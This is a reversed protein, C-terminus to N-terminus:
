VLGKFMGYNGCIYDKIAKKIYLRLEPKRVYYNLRTLFFYAYFVLKTPIGYGLKKCLYLRNRTNYYYLTPTVTTSRGEKHFIVSNKSCSLKYGHNVFTCSYDVDEVYLFYAEDMLGCKEIASLRILWCCGSLYNIYQQDAKDSNYYSYGSGKYRSYYGGLTYEDKHYYDYIKPGVMGITSDKELMSVLPPLFGDDVITDNNLLMVYDCKRQQSIRIGINNGASFGLNSKSQYLVCKYSSAEYDDTTCCFDNGYSRSMFDTLKDVSENKSDNDVVILSVVYKYSNLTTELSELCEITDEWGNYNLIVIAIKKM